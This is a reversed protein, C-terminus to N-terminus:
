WSFGPKGGAEPGARVHEIAAESARTIASTDDHVDDGVAGYDTVHITVPKSAAPPSPQLLASVALYCDCTAKFTNRAREIDDPTTTM